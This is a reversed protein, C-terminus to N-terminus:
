FVLNLIFGLIFCYLFIFFKNNIFNLRFVFKVELICIIYGIVVEFICLFYM